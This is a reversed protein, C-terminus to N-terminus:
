QPERVRVGEPEREYESVKSGRLRLREPERVVVTM